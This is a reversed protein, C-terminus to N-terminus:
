IGITASRFCPSQTNQIEMSNKRYKKTSSIITLQTELRDKPIKPNSTNEM